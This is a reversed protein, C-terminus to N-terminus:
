NSFNLFFFGVQPEDYSIVIYKIEVGDKKKPKTTQKKREGSFGCMSKDLIGLAPKNSARWVLGKLPEIVITM